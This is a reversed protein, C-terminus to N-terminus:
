PDRDIVIHRAIRWLDANDGIIELSVKWEGTIHFTYIGPRHYGKLKEFKLGAPRPNKMLDRLKGDLRTKIDTPLKKRDRKFKDKFTITRIVVGGVGVETM